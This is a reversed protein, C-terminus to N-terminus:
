KAERKAIRTEIWQIIESLVFGVPAGRATSDSLPFRKPFTPDTKLKKYITAPRLATLRAVEKM